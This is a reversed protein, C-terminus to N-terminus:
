RNLVHYPKFSNYTSKDSNGFFSFDGENCEYEICSARAFAQKSALLRTLEPNGVLQTAARTSASYVVYRKFVQPLDEFAYLSTIDLSVATGVTWKDTHSVKDYLRGNRRVVRKSKDNLGNHIDYQLVDSPYAIYGDADPYVQVHEETNFEWGESQVDSNCETLLNYIYSIEPNSFDLSTVPSQGIAGLISNVASLETDLDTTNPQPM